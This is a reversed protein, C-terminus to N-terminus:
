FDFFLSFHTVGVWKKNTITITTTTTTTTITILTM